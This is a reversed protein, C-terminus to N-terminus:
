SNFTALSRNFGNYFDLIFFGISDFLILNVCLSFEDESVFILIFDFKFFFVSDKRMIPM